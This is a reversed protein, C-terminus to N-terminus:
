INNNSVWLSELNYLGAEYLNLEQINNNECFLYKLNTLQSLGNIKKIGLSDLNLETIDKNVEKIITKDNLKLTLQVIEPVSSM